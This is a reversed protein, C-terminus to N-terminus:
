AHIITYTMTRITHTIWPRGHGRDTCVCGKVEDEDDVSGSTNTVVIWVERVRDVDRAVIPLENKLEDHIENPVEVDTGRGGPNAQHRKCGGGLNDEVQRLSDSPHNSVDNHGPYSTLSM